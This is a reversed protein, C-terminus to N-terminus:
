DHSGKCRVGHDECKYRIECMCPVVIAKPCCRGRTIGETVQRAGFVWEAPTPTGEGLLAKVKANFEVAPVGFVAAHDQWAKYKTRQTNINPTTNWAM